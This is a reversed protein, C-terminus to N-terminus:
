FKQDVVHMKTSTKHRKPRCFLNKNSSYVAQQPRENAQTRRQTGAVGLVGSWWELNGLPCLIVM